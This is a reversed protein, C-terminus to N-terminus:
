KSSVRSKIHLERLQKEEVESPAHSMPDIASQTKPFAIVDRISKRKAMLMVLRDLGFAIGGHPPTGYEFADMLFGFKAHAEEKTLGIAEFVKEQLDSNYIRLSGGGVEVGNLVIDYANAKVKEPATLLFEVDEERPATFPHHMAKYRKDEEVYEFMPFDVVWLFCLKNEDILKRRRAMELRLEGLAQAVVSPKDGVVLLLDGTEAGVAKKIQAFTEDSYFKKFPSKIGEATYQIWALGKAGYIKAYEVLGDLEKRPINAYGEVNIVKIQGGSELVSSFVKFDSGKVYESIDQLEMGFRLDPKDTGFRDMAEQWSMRRFPIDIKVDLTTEFIKKILGEMITIIQDQNLFSTEIDLQTFEPQRDARLDEDRFCRVIQFYKEFGSVMLLQKFIQPSQPLAYFQGPNLRSPVLFDRAGEPTSRCLMPTEIELFGNEDLYDRMIKTVRHRLIINQQMEARRLDLYRYRLRVNEDVDIGDQIYFPPTKAKNLIRLENTVIEIEGTAMKPNITEDSRARVTGRIGIVFENRLTEAKHFADEGMASADFVVQVIGSRDRMDVFILGGHDRRRSVWGALRVEKGEDSKRLEGCNHTREMGKLTEM